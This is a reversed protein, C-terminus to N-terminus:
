CYGWHRRWWTLLKRNVKYSPKMEEACKKSEVIFKGDYTNEDVKFGMSILVKAIAQEHKLIARLHTEDTLM